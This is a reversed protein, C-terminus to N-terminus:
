IANASGARAALRLLRGRTRRQEGLLIRLLQRRVHTEVDPLDLEYDRLAWSEGERLAALVERDGRSTTLRVASTAFAGWPVPQAEGDLMAPGGFEKVREALILARAAHSLRLRGLEERLDPDVVKSLAADYTVVAFREARLFAVLTELTQELTAEALRLSERRLLSRM